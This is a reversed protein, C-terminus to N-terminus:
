LDQLREIRRAAIILKCGAEAFRWACAEGIGSSAGVTVSFIFSTLCDVINYCNLYAGCETTSGLAMTTTAEASPLASIWAAIPGSNWAFLLYLSCFINELSIIAWQLKTPLIIRSFNIHM